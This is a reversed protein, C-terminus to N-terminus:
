LHHHHLADQGHDIDKPMRNSESGPREFRFDCMGPHDKAIRSSLDTPFHMSGIPGPPICEALLGAWRM